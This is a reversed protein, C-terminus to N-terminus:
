LAVVKDMKIKDETENEWTSERKCLEVEEPSLVSIHQKKKGTGKDEATVDLIGNADVDITIEIQPIGKTITYRIHSFVGIIWQGVM